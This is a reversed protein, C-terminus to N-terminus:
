STCQAKALERSTKSLEAERDASEMAVVEGSKQVTNIRMGSGLTRMKEHLSDCHKTKQAAAAQKEATSKQAEAQELRRKQFDAEKEATTMPGKAAAAKPDKAAPKAEPAPAPAAMPASKIIQSPKINAPPPQDSIILQGSNDKWQYQAQVPSGSLAIIALVSAAAIDGFSLRSPTRALLM